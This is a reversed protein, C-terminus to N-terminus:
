RDTVRYVFKLGSWDKDVACVKCDVLGAELGAARIDADKIDKPIKSKGKPWSVWITGTKKMLPKLRAFAEALERKDRTFYHIFDVGELSPDAVWNVEDPLDQILTFYHDPEYEIYLSYGAKIGLKKYLPTKSYNTM